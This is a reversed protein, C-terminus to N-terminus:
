PHHRLCHGPPSLDEPAKFRQEGTREFYFVRYSFIRARALDRRIAPAVTGLDEGIILTRRRHSELKLLGLLDRAPYRV